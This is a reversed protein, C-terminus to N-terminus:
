LHQSNIKWYQRGPILPFGLKLSLIIALHDFFATVMIKKDIKHSLM